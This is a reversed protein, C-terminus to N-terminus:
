AGTGTLLLAIDDENCLKLTTIPCGSPGGNAFRNLKTSKTWDYVSFRLSILFDDFRSQSFVSTVNGKEDAAM